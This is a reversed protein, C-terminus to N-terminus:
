TIQKKLFSEIMGCPVFVPKDTVEINITQGEITYNGKIYNGFVSVEFMGSTTDGSFTGSQTEVATRAKDVAVDPSVTFPFQFKCAM